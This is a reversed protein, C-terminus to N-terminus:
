SVALLFRRTQQMVWANLMSAALWPQGSLADWVSQVRSSSITTCPTTTNKGSSKEPPATPAQPRQSRRETGAMICEGAVCLALTQALTKPDRAPLAQAEGLAMPGLTRLTPM